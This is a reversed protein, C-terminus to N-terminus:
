QLWLYIYSMTYFGFDFRSMEFNWFHQFNKWEAHSLRWENAPTWLSTGVDEYQPCRSLDRTDRVRDTSPLLRNYPARQYIATKRIFSLPSLFLSFSCIQPVDVRSSHDTEHPADLQFAPSSVVSLLGILGGM